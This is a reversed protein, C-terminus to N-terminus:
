WGFGILCSSAKVSNEPFSIIEQQGQIQTSTFALHVKAVKYHRLFFIACLLIDLSLSYSVGSSM